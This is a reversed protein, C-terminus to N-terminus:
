VIDVFPLLYSQLPPMDNSNMEDHHLVHSLDRCVENAIVHLMRVHLSMHIDM